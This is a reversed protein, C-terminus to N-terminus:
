FLRPQDNSEEKGNYVRDYITQLLEGGYTWYMKPSLTYEGKAHIIGTLKSPSFIGGGHELKRPAVVTATIESDNIYVLTAQMPIGIKEFNINPSSVRAPSSEEEEVMEEDDEDDPDTYVGIQGNLIDTVDEIAVMAMAEMVARPTVKFFERRKNVIWKAFIGKLNGEIRIADAINGVTVARFVDFAEPVGTSWLKRIRDRGGELNTWGIKVIGPMWKNTAVYVVGQEKAETM